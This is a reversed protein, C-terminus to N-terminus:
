FGHNVIMYSIWYGVCFLYALIMGVKLIGRFSM